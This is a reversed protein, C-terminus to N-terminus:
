VIHTQWLEDKKIVSLETTQSGFGFGKSMVFPIGQVEFRFYITFGDDGHDNKNEHFEIYANQILNDTASDHIKMKCDELYFDDTIELNSIVPFESFIDDMSEIQSLESGGFFKGHKEKYAEQLYKILLIFDDVQDCLGSNNLQEILQENTM